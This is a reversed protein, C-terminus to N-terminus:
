LEQLYNAGGTALKRVTGLAVTKHKSQQKTVCQEYRFLTVTLGSYVDVKWNKRCFIVNLSGEEDPAIPPLILDGISIGYINNDCVGQINIEFCVYNQRMERFTVTGHLAPMEQNGYLYCVGHLM